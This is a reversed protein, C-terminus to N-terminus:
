ALELASDDGREQEDVSQGSSKSEDEYLRFMMLLLGIGGALDVVAAARALFPPVDMLVFGDLLTPVLLAGQWLAVLAIALYTFSGARQSLIRWLMWVVFALILGLEIMQYVSVAPRGYLDRGFAATAIAALAALALVRAVWRDLAPRRVRWAAIVCLLLVAIPWFWVISPGAAHWLSGSVASLRGDVVMPVRWAGVYRAGPSLAVSALAHLRGDHWSYDHGSSVLQWRPPTRPGLNAPPTEPVPTQNLFWMASKHNVWVGAASFRLYPAGRYDLVLVTERRRVRLWMRQDGDVAKADFGAPASTVKALYSSAV